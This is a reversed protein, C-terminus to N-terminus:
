WGSVAYKAIKKGFHGLITKNLLKTYRINGNILPKFFNNFNRLKLNIIAKNTVHRIMLMTNPLKTFSANEFKFNFTKM